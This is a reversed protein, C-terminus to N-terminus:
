FGDLSQMDKHRRLHPREPHELPGLPDYLVVKIKCEGGLFPESGRLVRGLSYRDKHRRLQPRPPCSHGSACHAYCGIITHWSSLCFHNEQDVSVQPM